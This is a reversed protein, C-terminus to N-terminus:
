APRPPSDGLFASLRGLGRGLLVAALQLPQTPLEGLGAGLVPGLDVLQTRLGPGVPLLQAGVVGRGQLLYPPGVGSLELREGEGPVWGPGISLTSVLSRRGRLFRRRPGKGM